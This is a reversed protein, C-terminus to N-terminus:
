FPAIIQRDSSTKVSHCSVKFTQLVHSTMDDFETGFKLSIPTITQTLHWSCQKTESSLTEFDLM